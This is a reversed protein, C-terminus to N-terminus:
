DEIGLLLKLNDIEEESLIRGKNRAHDLLADLKKYAAANADNEKRNATATQSIRYAWLDSLLSLDGESLAADITIPLTVTFPFTKGDNTTAVSSLTAYGADLSELQRGIGKREYATLKAFSDRIKPDPIQQLLNLEHSKLERAM